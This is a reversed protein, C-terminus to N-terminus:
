KIAAPHDKLTYFNKYKEAEQKNDTTFVPQHNHHVIYMEYFNYDNQYYSPYYHIEIYTM